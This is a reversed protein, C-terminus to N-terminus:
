LFASLGCTLLSLGGTRIVQGFTELKTGEEVMQAGTAEIKVGTASLSSGTYAVAAATAEMKLATIAYTLAFLQTSSVGHQDFIMDLVTKTAPTMVNYGGVATINIAAPTTITAGGAITQTVAGAITETIGGSITRTESGSVTETIGGTITRTEGGTITETLGGSVTRTEGGSITETVGATVTRTEGSDITEKRSGKVHITDNADVELTRNNEVTIDLDKEAHVFVQESGKKDEFRIENFNAAGGGKSSRSKIGSQTANAPLDYPPMNDANYVRGTVIPRDPDGELFDVIVEQGVRPVHIGGWGKGAWVQAVRVWCSSTEDHKADREWHFQVKVRGYKDTWIEEGSKGVVTATQPGQVFPRRATRPPRYVEQSDIATFTCSYEPGASSRTGSRYEESLIECTASVVLYERNQDDRPAETLTFLGGPTIGRANGEGSVEEYQSQLERLRADVYGGGDGTTLYEGPYDYVEYDAHPHQRSTSSKVLLGARPKEFDFDNLAYAGSQVEKSINWEWVHDEDRVVNDTPPYYPIADQGHIPEHASYSDALVLVHKEEEHRFFYYIGEQELLRSVFNLDSERYQVCYPRNAYSGSLREEFDSFGAERFIHKVIDVTKEDQFIKCDATRSLFYLWPRLTARYVVDDGLRGGQAFRSVLGHFCRTGGYPLGIKVTFPHGLLDEFKVQENSSVLELQYEFPQGL